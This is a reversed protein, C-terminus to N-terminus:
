IFIYTKMLISKKWSKWQRPIGGRFGETAAQGIKSLNSSQGQTQYIEIVRLFKFRIRQSKTKASFYFSKKFFGVTLIDFAFTDVQCFFVQRLWIKLNIYKLKKLWSTLWSCEMKSFTELSNEFFLTISLLLKNPHTGSIVSKSFRPRYNIIKM